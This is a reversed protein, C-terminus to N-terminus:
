SLGHFLKKDLQEARRDVYKQDLLLQYERRKLAAEKCRLVYIAIALILYLGAIAFILAWSITEYM